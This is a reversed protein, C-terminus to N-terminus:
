LSMIKTLISDLIGVEQMIGGLAAATILLIITNGMSNIGGKSLLSDLMELGSSSNYGSTFSELVSVLSSGQFIISFIGGLISMSLLTPIAPTKRVALIITILPLIFLVPTLNFSSELGQILTNIQEAGSISSGIHNLSVAWYIILSLAFAPLTDWLMHGVHEFLTCGAMAPAINTTDSLPSLKDGFFAGSIVAAATLPAPFGMANGVAMLAVGVTAISTFSTGITTAVIATILASLPVFVSPNLFKLGFYIMAPITGSAIWTGIITGVILLIFVPTLASSVGKKLGTELDNWDFDHFIGIIGTTIIGSILPVLMGVEWFLVSFAGTLLLVIIPLLAVGFSIKSKKM